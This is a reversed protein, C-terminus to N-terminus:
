NGVTQAYIKGFCIRKKIIIRAFVRQIVCKFTYSLDEGYELHLLGSRTL